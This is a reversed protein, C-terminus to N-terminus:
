LEMVGFHMPKPRMEFWVVNFDLLNASLELKGIQESLIDELVCKLM